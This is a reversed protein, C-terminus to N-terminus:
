GGRRPIASATGIKVGVHLRVGSPFYAGNEDADSGCWPM